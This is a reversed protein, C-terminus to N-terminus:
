IIRLFINIRTNVAGADEAVKKLHTFYEIFEEITEGCGWLRYEINPLDELNVLKHTKYDIQTM